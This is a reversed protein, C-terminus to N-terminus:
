TWPTLGRRVAMGDLALAAIAVPAAARIAAGAKTEGVTGLPTATSDGDTEVREVAEAPAPAFPVCTPLAARAVPISSPDSFIDPVLLLARVAGLALTAARAALTSVTPIM